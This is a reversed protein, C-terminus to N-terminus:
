METIKFYLRERGVRRAGVLGAKELEGLQISVNQISKSLIRAIEKVSRKGDCLDFIERKSESKLEKAVETTMQRRLGAELLAIVRDLKASIEELTKTQTWELEEKEM